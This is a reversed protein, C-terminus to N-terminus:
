IYAIKHLRVARNCQKGSRVKDISGEAILEGQVALEKLGADGFRAAIVGLIVMLIHFGGMMIVLGKFLDKDKWLVEMAKAYFLQDFVWVVCELM